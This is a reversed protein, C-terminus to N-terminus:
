CPLSPPGTIHNLFVSSVGKSFSPSLPFPEAVAIGCETKKKLVEDSVTEFGSDIKGGQNSGNEVLTSHGNIKAAVEQSSKGSVPLNERDM